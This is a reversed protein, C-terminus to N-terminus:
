RKLLYGKKLLYNQSLLKDFDESDINSKDIKYGRIDGGPNIGLNNIKILSHMFGKSITIIVGVFQEGQRKDPNIISLWYCVLEDLSEEKEIMEDIPKDTKYDM